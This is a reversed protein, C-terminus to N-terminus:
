CSSVTHSAPDHVALGWIKDVTMGHCLEVAAEGDRGGLM